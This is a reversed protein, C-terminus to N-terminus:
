QAGHLFEYIASFDEDGLGKRNALQYVEKAVNGCPLAVGVEYAAQAAMHLDKQMWQLPFDAEYVGSELKDQKLSVFPATVPGGLLVKFLLDSSLGLAQGLIMGEAFTVMSTALLYNLVLKLSTAAGHDGVHLVKRGMIDFLPRVEELDSEAGGVLFLLAGKEAHPKSGAVPAELFRVVRKKAEDAMKLAFSPNGTSCDVWLCHPLMSDLFGDVGTATVEVAGPHALMTFLVEVQAAVQAPTDAWTAGEEVLHTAKEKNRNYVVLEHGQSQLQAAMRSGMIGLGIFGIKM